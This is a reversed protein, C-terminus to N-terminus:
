QKRREHWTADRNLLSRMDNRAAHLRSKVTGPPIKLVASIEAISLEEFYRLRLITKKAVDLQELLDTVGTDSRVAAPCDDIFEVQVHRENAQTKIWDISKNTTIQYAWAKFKAPDNLKGLGKIIGLWSQQSIDWAVDRDRTLRFAHAWLRKQWRRVLQQLANRDGEQADMVLLQDEITSLNDGM